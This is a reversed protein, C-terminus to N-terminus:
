KLLLMKKTTVFEGAELRYFYVGSVLGSANWQVSHFGAAQHSNMLVEVVQGIINYITVKVQAAEPLAYDITTVPNFPNPYNQSLLYETPLQQTLINEDPGVGVYWQILVQAYGEVGGAEHRATITYVGEESGAAYLGTEDITGGAASWVPTFVLITNFQNIGIAEFQVSDGPSLAVSDPIVFIQTPIPEYTLVLFSDTEFTGPDTQSIATVIVSNETGEETNGSVALRIAAGGGFSSDLTVSFNTPEQVWSLDDTVNVEVTETPYQWNRVSFYVSDSEGPPIYVTDAGTSLVLSVMETRWNSFDVGTSVKDGMGQGEGSPGSDDGWWNNVATVTVAPSMNKVGFGENGYINNDTIDANSFNELYIASGADGTIQNGRIVAYTSDLHIGSTNSINNEFINNEIIIKESEDVDARYSRIVLGKQNDHVHNGLINIYKIAPNLILEHLQHIKIGVNNKFINNSLISARGHDESMEIFIGTENYAILNPLNQLSLGSFTVGITFDLDITKIGVTNQLNIKNKNTGIYNGVIISGYSKEILIGENINGSIINRDYEEYGGIQNYWTEWFEIGTNNPIPFTGNKDTGIKNGLIKNYETLMGNIRIGIDNGSIVNGESESPGGIINKKSRYHIFIGDKNGRANEGLNDTGIYNGSVVNESSESMYIGYMKNFSIINRDEGSSGGIINKSTRNLVIGYTNGVNVDSTKDTGIYNHKIVNAGESRSTSIYIGIDNGSILNGIKNDEFFGINNRRSDSIEIGIIDLSDLIADDGPLNTGIFNGVINNENADTLLLIGSKRNGSILNHAIGTIGGILNEDAMDLKIGNEENGLAKEGKSDTGIMNGGIINQRSENGIIYIGNEGNGSIVNNGPLEGIVNERTNILLIGDKENKLIDTGDRNVGILNGNISNGDSYEEIVIGNGGNGSILNGGISGPAVAIGIINGPSETLRIGGKENGLNGTGDVMAGIYANFIQNFTSIIGDILVGYEKNGSIINGPFNADDVSSIRNSHSNSIYIGSKENPISDNGDKNTGIKNDNISNGHTDNESDGDIYIGNGKNGSVVNNNIKCQSAGGTIHIGNGNNGEKSSGTEDTGIYNYHITNDISNSGSIYIGDKLNLKIVNNPGTSEYGIRNEPANVIKVGYENGNLLNGEVTNGTADEGEIRIGSGMNLSVQNGLGEGPILDLIGVINRPASNIFIGDGENAGTELESYCKGIKNGKISNVSSLIGKIEIGHGKNSSIINGSIEGGDPTGGITNAGSNEVLIGNLGNPIDASVDFDTGIFNKYIMNERTNDSSSGLIYLGHGLNGSIVNEKVTNQTAGKEIFIGNGGNGPNEELNVRPGIVNNLIKNFKSGTGSIVLGNGGNGSIYNGLERSSGGITNGNGNTIMIGINNGAVDGEETDTGIYCGSVTNNWGGDIHIGNVFHMIILNQISSGEGDFTIQLGDSDTLNVGDIYIDPKQQENMSGTISVPSTIEPLATSPQILYVDEEGPIDFTIKDKGEKANAEMIAARLTCKPKGEVYHGDCECKGNGPNNDVDDDTSNVVLEGVGGVAVVLANEGEQFEVHFIIEGNDNVTSPWGTAGTRPGRFFGMYEELPTVSEITKIVGPEIELQDYKKAAVKVGNKDGFWICDNGLLGLGGSTGYIAVQGSTNADMGKLSSVSVSDEMLNGTRIVNQLGTEDGTWIGAEINSDFNDDTTTAFVSIMDNDHLVSGVFDIFTASDTGDAVDGRSAVKLFTGDKEMYLTDGYLPSALVNDSSNLHFGYNSTGNSPYSHIIHSFGESKKWLYVASTEKRYITTHEGKIWVITNGYMNLTNYFGMYQTIVYDDEMFPMPDGQRCLITFGNQDVMALIYHYSRDDDSWIYGRFIVGGMNFGKVEYFRTLIIEPSEPSITMGDYVKLALTGNEEMFFGHTEPEEGTPSYTAEIGIQGSLDMFVEVIEVFFQGQLGPVESKERAILKIDNNEEVWYGKSNAVTVGAVGYQLHGEFLVRGTNSIAVPSFSSFIAGGTGPAEQGSVVIVRKQDQADTKGAILLTVMFIMCVFIKLSNGKRSKM